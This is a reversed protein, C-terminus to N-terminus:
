ESDRILFSGSGHSVVTQTITGPMRRRAAGRRERKQRRFLLCCFADRQTLEMREGGRVRGGGGERERKELTQILSSYSM